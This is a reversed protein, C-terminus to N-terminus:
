VRDFVLRDQAFEARRITNRLTWDIIAASTRQQPTMDAVSFHQMEALGSQAMKAAARAAGLGYTNGFAGTLGLQRDLADQEAGSFYQARTAFQPRARVWEAAFGESWEDFSPAAAHVSAAALSVLALLLTITHKIKCRMAPQEM